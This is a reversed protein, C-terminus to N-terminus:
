AQDDEVLISNRLAKRLLKGNASRPLNTVQRLLRPQKYRALREQCHGMLADLDIPTPATFAVAIISADDRIPAAVAAAEAIGPYATVAAEVEAPSVRFGGANLMDDDRGLYTVAGDEAMSVTDGTLFWEGRCRTAFLDDRNLYGLMLGPDRRSVALTGPADIPQVANTDPDLVALRRGSQPYGAIDPRAGTLPSTSLYTSVESMGLAEYVATGTAATWAAHTALPMKEGASLGHRLDPMPPLTKRKLMQRYIGPAGAFITARSKVIADPLDGAPMNGGPIIATAGAAWPDLLGTGLTFTWNFAGAHLVRDDDRLGYWGQWMMRRAWVARHAHVVGTPDGSSGSTFVIYAPDDAASDHCALHGGSWHDRLNKADIVRGANADPLAVDAAGITGAPRLTAAIRTVERATLQAATPVPVLGAHIAGLFTIPFDVRNGLRMLLRDGPAFGIGRLGSAVRSVADALQGFTWTGQDPGHLIELAIRDPEQPAIGLVYAAINFRAPCPPPPGADFLSRTLHM